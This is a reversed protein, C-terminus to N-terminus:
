EIKFRVKAEPSWNPADKPRSIVGSHRAGNRMVQERMQSGAWDELLIQRLSELPSVGVDEDTSYGRFYVVQDAPYLTRGKTGSVEFKEPTLWNDGKPTVMAPPLRILGATNGEVKSKLLYAVDYIAFDLVLANRFRYGTTWPNPRRLLQALPHDHLRQR